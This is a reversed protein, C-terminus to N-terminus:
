APAGHMKRAKILLSEGFLMGQSFLQKIIEQNRKRQAADKEERSFARVTMLYAVPVFVAYMWSVAKIRNTRVSGIHFGNTHLMYRLQDFSLINIIHQPSVQGENLPVKRKNHFGTWFWRWRSRLSSINPTSIVLIGQEQLVRRCERVFDFPRETHAIGDICAIADMSGARYPLPVNMDCVVFKADSVRMIKACDAAYVDFGMDRLRQTFAGEGCPIDLVKRVDNDESLLGAAVAHTHRASNERIGAYERKNM